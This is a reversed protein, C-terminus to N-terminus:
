RVAFGQTAVQASPRTLLAEAHTALREPLPLGLARAWAFVYFLAADDLGIRDPLRPVADWQAALTAFGSEIESRGLQRLADQAAPEATFKQPMAAFTFGRAHITGIIFDMRELVRAQAEADDPWLGPMGHTQSLWYAIAAFETLIAGDALRLAPVKGKPNAARFAASNQEGKTLDVAALQYDVGLEELLFVIGMSCAGPAHFLTLM